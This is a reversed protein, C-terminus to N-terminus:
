IGSVWWDPCYLDFVAYVRRDYDDRHLTIEGTREVGLAPLLRSLEDYVSERYSAQPRILYAEKVHLYLKM